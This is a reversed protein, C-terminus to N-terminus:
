PAWPCSPLLTWCPHRCAPLSHMLRRLGVRGAEGAVVEVVVVDEELVHMRSTHM